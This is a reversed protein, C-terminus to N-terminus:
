GLEEGEEVEMLILDGAEFLWMIDETTYQSLIDVAEDMAEFIFDLNEEEELEVMLKQVKSSRPVCSLLEVLRRRAHDLGFAADIYCGIDEKSFIKTTM